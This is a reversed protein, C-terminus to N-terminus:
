QDPKLRLQMGFALSAGSLDVRRPLTGLGSTRDWEVSKFDRWMYSGEAFFNVGGFEAVLGAVAGLQFTEGTFSTVSTDTYARGANLSIVGSRAGFYIGYNVPLLSLLPPRADRNVYISVSPAERLSVRIDNEPVRSVFAGTQTFGVAVEFSYVPERWSFQRVKVDHQYTVAARTSDRKVLTRATDACDEDQRLERREFRANCSSGQASRDAAQPLLKVRSTGGPIGFSLEFGLGSAGRENEPKLAGRPAGSATWFFNFDTANGLLGALADAQAISEHPTALILATAALAVSVAGRISERM